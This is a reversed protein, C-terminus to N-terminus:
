LKLHHLCELNEAEKTARFILVQLLKTSPNILEFVCVDGAKLSNDRAFQAWGQRIRCQNCHSYLSCTVPWIRGEAELLIQNQYKWKKYAEKFTKPIYVGSGNEYVYIPKMAHIFFPNKSRFAKASALARDKDEKSAPAPEDNEMAKKHQLKPGTNRAAIPASSARIKKSPRIMESSTTDDIDIVTKKVKSRSKVSNPIKTTALPYDIESASPDFIRVLFKSDGALSNAHAFNRWGSTFRAATRYSRSTTCKVPWSRGDSSQLIVNCHDRTIHTTVFIKPVSLCRGDVYSPRMNIKFFPNESRFAKASVEAESTVQLAKQNVQHSAEASALVTKTYQASSALCITFDERRGIDDAAVEKGKGLGTVHDTEESHSTASLPYEVETASKDMIIVHFHSNGKYRFVLLHGFCISYHEAFDPWGNQLWVQSDSRELKVQWISGAPAELFIFDALDDGCTTLFKTPIMLRSHPTITSVIMKFFYRPKVLPDMCAPVQIIDGMELAEYDSHEPSSHKLLKKSPNILEFVCVDGVKLSNDRAFDAWGHRFACRDNSLNFYSFVPWTKGGVELIVEVNKMWKKYVEEFTKTIHMGSSGKIHSPTMSVIFYPKESKFDKAAALAPDKKVNCASKGNSNAICSYSARTRKRPSIEDSDDSINFENERKKEVKTSKVFELTTSCNAPYDIESASPDFILVKFKSDEQYEFVLLYGFGISYFKAFEPWGNQLWVKDQQKELDISWVSGSPVSLQIRNDLNKEFLREFKRPIMQVYIHIWLDVQLSTEEERFILVQLLKRSPNILEFVCVDDVNLSNERAFKGWKRGFRCQNSNVSCYVTWRRNEVRLIVKDNNKWKKYAEKFTNTIYVNPWAGVVNSSKMVHIFSPNKSKFAKASALAVGNREAKEQKVKPGDEGAKCSSSATTRKCPRVVDVSTSDDSDVVRKKARGLRVVNRNETTSTLPYDTELGSPDFVLVQFKSDGKNKHRKLKIPWVSGGPVKLSIKDDLNKGHISAFKKPIMQLMHMVIVIRDTLSHNCM